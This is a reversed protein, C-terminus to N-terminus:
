KMEVHSNFSVNLKAQLQFEPKNRQWLGMDECEWPRDHRRWCLFVFLVFAIWIYSFHLSENSPYKLFMARLWKPNVAM